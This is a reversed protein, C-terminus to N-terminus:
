SVCLPETEAIHASAQVARQMAQASLRKFRYQILRLYPYALKSLFHDAKSFCYIEYWVSDDAHNYEVAFREEGAALHEGVTGYAFGYREVEDTIDDMTYVIRCPNLVWVGPARFLTAVVRGAELPVPWVLDVFERPFMKWERLTQKASLFKQRGRGLCVRMHGCTFGNPTTADRTAEVDGYTFPAERHQLLFQSLQHYSPKTLSIM